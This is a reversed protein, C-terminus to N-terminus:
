IFFGLWANPLTRSSEGSAMAALRRSSAEMSRSPTIGGAHWPHPVAAATVPVFRRYSFRKGIKSVAGSIPRGPLVCHQDIQRGAGAFLLQYKKKEYRSSEYMCKSLICFVVLIM